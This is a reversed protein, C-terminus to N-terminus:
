ILSFKQTNFHFFQQFLGSKHFFFNITKVINSFLYSPHNVGTFILEEKFRMFEEVPTHIKTYCINKSIKQGFISNKLDNKISNKM